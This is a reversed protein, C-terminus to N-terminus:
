ECLSNDIKRLIIDPTVVDVKERRIALVTSAILTSLIM